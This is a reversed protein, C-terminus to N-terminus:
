FRFGIGASPQARHTVREPGLNSQDFTPTEYVHGRYQARLYFRSTVNFDAGAGYIFAARAQTTRTPANHVDFTLAGVGALAFPVLRKFPHRFVYAASVEHTNIPLGATSVAGSYTQTNRAYGYTFELAHRRSLGLRYNALFGGSNTSNHRVGTETTDAVFSGTAQGTVEHRFETSDQATATLGALLLGTAIKAANM